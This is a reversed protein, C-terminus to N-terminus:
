NEESYGCDAEIGALCDPCVWGYNEICTGDATCDVGCHLCCHGVAPDQSSEEVEQAPEEVKETPQVEQADDISYQSDEIIRDLEEYSYNLFCDECFKHDKYDHSEIKTIDKGCGSCTYTEPNNMTDILENAKDYCNDCYMSDQAFEHMEAVPFEDGCVDCIDTDSTSQCGVMALSGLLITSALMSRLKM